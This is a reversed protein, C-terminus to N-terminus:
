TPEGPGAKSAVTVPLEAGYRHPWTTIEGRLRYQGPSLLGEFTTEFTLTPRDPGLVESGLIQPFFKDGAWHWVRDGGEDWLAFDFRQGDRFELTIPTSSRNTLCLRMPIAQGPRYLALPISLTLSLRADGGHSQVGPGGGLLVLGSLLLPRVSSPM